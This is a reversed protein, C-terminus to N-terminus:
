PEQASAMIEYTVSRLLSIAWAHESIRNHTNIYSTSPLKGAQSCSKLGACVTSVVISSSRGLYRRKGAPAPIRPGVDDNKVGLVKEALRPTLLALQARIALREEETVNPLESLKDEWVSQHSPVIAVLLLLVTAPRVM